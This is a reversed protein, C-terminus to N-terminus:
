YGVKWGGNQLYTRVILSDKKRDGTTLNYLVTAIGGNKAVSLVTVVAHEDKSRELLAHLAGPLAQYVHQKERALSQVYAVSDQNNLAAYSQIVANAPNDLPTPEVCAALLLLLPLVAISKWM